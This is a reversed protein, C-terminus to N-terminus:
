NGRGDTLLSLRAVRGNLEAALYSHNADAGLSCRSWRFRRSSFDTEDEVAISPTRTDNLFDTEVWDSAVNARRGRCGVRYIWEDV